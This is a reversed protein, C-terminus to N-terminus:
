KAGGFRADFLLIARVQLYLEQLEVIERDTLKEKPLYLIQVTSVPPAFTTERLMRNMPLGFVARLQNMIKERLYVVTERGLYTQPLVIHGTRDIVSYYVIGQEGSLRRMDLRTCSPLSSDVKGDAISQLSPYLFNRTLIWNMASYCEGLDHYDAWDGDVSISIKRPGNTLEWVWSREGQLDDLTRKVERYGTVSWDGITKPLASENVAPLSGALVSEAPALSFVRLGLIGVLAFVGAIPLVWQREPLAWVPFRWEGPTPMPAAIEIKETEEFEDRGARKLPVFARFLSDTCLVMGGICFFVIFGLLDHKLGSSVSYDSWEEVLVVLMIRASNFVIVWFIAQVLNLLHRPLSYRHLLGWFVTGAITSFFSRIGSCAEEALFSQSAAVLLVGQRVHIIGLEDLGLSALSSALYQMNLILKGDIVAPQPTLVLLMALVPLARVIGSSGFFMYFFGFLFLLFSLWGLFGSTLLTALSASLVSIGLITSAINPNAKTAVSAIEGRRQRWIIVAGLIGIPFFSYHDTALMRNAHLWLPFAHGFIATLLLVLPLSPM